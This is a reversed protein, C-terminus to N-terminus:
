AVTKIFEQLEKKHKNIPGVGSITLTAPNLYIKIASNIEELSLNLLQKKREEIEALTFNQLHYAHLEGILSTTSDHKLTQGTKLIEKFRIFEDNSIGESYLKQIERFTSTLGQLSKDPAFFTMIRWYGQESQFFGQTDAYIGYTLGEQERVTSMLRGSFGGVKGLVCLAFSLALFDPHHLTIPLPAGISFDINQRSPINKLVVGPSPPKQQHITLVEKGKAKADTVIATLTKEFVTVSEKDGVISATFHSRRVHGNFTHLQAPTVKKLAAILEADTVAFRRDLPGYITNRLQEHAITKSDEQSHIIANELTQKIRKLEVNSFLPKNFMVEALRLVSPFVEARSKIAVALIGDSVSVSLQAGLTNLADLFTSRTYKGAGSLLAETYILQLASNKANTVSHIDTSLYATIANQRPKTITALSFGSGSTIDYKM